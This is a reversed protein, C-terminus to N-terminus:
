AVQPRSWRRRYATRPGRDTTRPGGEATRGWSTGRHVNVLVRSPVICLLYRPQILVIEQFLQRVIDEHRAVHLLGEAIQELATQAAVLRVRAADLPQPRQEFSQSLLALLLKFAVFDRVHHALDALAELINHVGLALAYVAPQVVRTLPHVLGALPSFVQALGHPDEFVLGPTRLVAQVRQRFCRCPSDGRQVLVLEHVVIGTLFKLVQQVAELLPHGFVVGFFHAPLDAVHTRLLHLLEFVHEPAEVLHHPLPLGTQLRVEFSEHLIEAMEETGVRWATEILQQVPHSLLNRGGLRHGLAHRRLHAFLDVAHHLLCEVALEHVLEGFESGVGLLEHRARLRPM